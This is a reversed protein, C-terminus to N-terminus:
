RNQGRCRRCGSRHESQESSSRPPGVPFLCLFEHGNRREGHALQQFRANMESVAGSPPVRFHLRVQEPHPVPGVDDIKLLGHRHEMLCQRRDAIDHRGAAAHQEDAGLALRASFHRLGRGARALVEDVVPPQAAHHRVPPGDGIGDPAKPLQFLLEVFLMETQGLFLGKSQGALAVFQLAGEAADLLHASQRIDQEDDVGVLFQDGDGFGVFQLDGDDGHHIRVAIGDPM